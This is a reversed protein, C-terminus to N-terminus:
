LTKLTRLNDRILCSPGTNGLNESQFHKGVNRILADSLLQNNRARRAMQLVSDVLATGLGM